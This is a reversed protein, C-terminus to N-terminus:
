QTKIGLSMNKTKARSKRLYTVMVKLGLPSLSLGLYCVVKGKRGRQRHEDLQQSYEGKCMEARTMGGPGATNDYEGWLRGRIPIGHFDSYPKAKRWLKAQNM